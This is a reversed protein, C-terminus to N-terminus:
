WLFQGMQVELCSLAPRRGSSNAWVLVVARLLSHISKVVCLVEGTGILYPALLGTRRALSTLPLEIAPSVRRSIQERTVVAVLLFALPGAHVFWVGLLM